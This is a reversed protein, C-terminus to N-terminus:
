QFKDFFFGTNFTMLERHITNCDEARPRTSARLGVAKYSKADFKM